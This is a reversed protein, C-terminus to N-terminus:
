PLFRMSLVAEGAPGCDAEVTINEIEDASEPVDLSLALGIREGSAVRLSNKDLTPKWGEGGKITLRVESEEEGFNYVYIPIREPRGAPVRYASQELAVRKKPLLAQLVIPSPKGELWEPKAPPPDLDLRKAADQPLVVYVPGGALEVADRKATERGLHDYAAIPEVPPRWIEPEKEKWAVLVTRTQGDPKARFAYVHLTDDDGTLRGLARADALLRGVAALALYGPRPTFDERLLGFQLKGGYQPLFFFFTAASGEHFSVTYIKTVRESQLRLNERSPEHYKNNEDFPVPRNAETLWLPRGASVARFAAFSRPYKLPPDYIHFNFTDFYPWPRNAHFDTLTTPRRLCAFANQGVIVEPNGAKLGLYSAKQMAAMEGGTHHGFDWADAENWPEVALVKGRWREAVRRYFRYADRLDPPFRGRHGEAWAWPPTNHNVQLVKLGAATQVEAARDYRNREIPKGRKPQLEKWSFRDRVWNLGALACLNAAAPMEEETCFWAAGVDCAVPSSEPTPARLPALVGISFPRHGSSEDGERRLQYYGVPLRGLRVRGGGEGRHVIKGDYDEIRWPGSVEDPLAVEVEEGALFVNGPHDPLPKPITREASSAVSAAITFYLLATASITKTFM